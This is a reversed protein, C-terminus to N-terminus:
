IFTRSVLSGRSQRRVASAGCTISTLDVGLSHVLASAIFARADSHTEDAPDGDM